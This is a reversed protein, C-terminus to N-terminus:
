SFSLDDGIHQALVDGGLVQQKGAQARCLVHLKDKFVGGVHGLRDGNM